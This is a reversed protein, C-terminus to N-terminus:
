NDDQQILEVSQTGLTYESINDFNYILDIVCDSEAHVLFSGRFAYSTDEQIFEYEFEQEQSGSVVIPVSLLAPILIHCINKM